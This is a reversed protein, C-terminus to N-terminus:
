RRLPKERLVYIRGEKDKGYVVHKGEEDNLYVHLQLDKGELDHINYHFGKLYEQQTLM